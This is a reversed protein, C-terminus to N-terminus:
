HLLEHDTTVQSFRHLLCRGQYFFLAEDEHSLNRAPQVVNMTLLQYMAVNFGFIHEKGAAVRAGRRTFNAVKAEGSLPRTQPVMVCGSGGNGEGGGCGGVAKCGGGGGGITVAM